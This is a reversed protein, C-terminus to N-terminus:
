HLVTALLSTGLLQLLLMLSGLHIISLPLLLLLLLLRGLAVCRPWWAVIGWCSGLLCVALCLCSSLLQQWRRLLHKGAHHLGMPMRLTLNM